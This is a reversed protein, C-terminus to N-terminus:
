LHGVSGGGWAIGVQVWSLKLEVSCPEPQATSILLHSWIRSTMLAPDSIFNLNFSYSVATRAFSSINHWTHFTWKVAWKFLHCHLLWRFLVRFILICLPLCLVNHQGVWSQLFHGKSLILVTFQMKLSRHALCSLSDVNHVSIIRGQPAAMGRIVSCTLPSSHWVCSGYPSM